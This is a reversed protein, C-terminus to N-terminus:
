QDEDCDNNEEEEEEEEEDDDDDDDEDDDDDDDDDNSDDDYNKDNCIADNNKVKREKPREQTWINRRYKVHDSGKSQEESDVAKPTNPHFFM